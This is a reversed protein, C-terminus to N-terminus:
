DTWLRRFWSGVLVLNVSGDERPSGFNKRERNSGSVCVNRRFSTLDRIQGRGDVGLDIRPEGWVELLGM